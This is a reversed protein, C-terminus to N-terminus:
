ISLNVSIQDPKGNSLNYYRVHFLMTDSRKALGSGQTSRGMLAQIMGEFKTALEIVGREQAKVLRERMEEPADLKQPLVRFSTELHSEWPELRSM